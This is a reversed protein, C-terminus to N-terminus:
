LNLLVAEFFNLLKELTVYTVSSPTYPLERLVLAWWTLTSLVM